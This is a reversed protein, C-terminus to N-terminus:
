EEGHPEDRIVLITLGCGDSYQEEQSLWTEGCECTHRRCLHGDVNTWTRTTRAPKGCIRCGTKTAAERFKLGFLPLFEALVQRSPVALQERLSLAARTRSAITKVPM